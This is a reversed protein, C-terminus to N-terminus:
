AGVLAALAARALHNETIDTLVWEWSYLSDPELLM